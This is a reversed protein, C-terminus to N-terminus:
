TTERLVMAPDTRSARHAPLWAAIMGVTALMVTATGVVLPDAPTVGYLLSSIFRGSWLSIALGLAIGTGILWSTEWVVLRIVGAPASGLALRVALESRRCAVVYATVGYLGIAALLLALAGGFLSLRAVLRDQALVANVRESMPRFTSKLNPDIATVAARVSNLIQAPTQATPRVALFFFQYYLPFERQALPQYMTPIATERISTHISDGVVGVITKRGIAVDGSDNTHATLSVTRNVVREGPFYRRVFAENVLMVPAANRSDQEAIDRGERLTIGYAALWGPTIDFLLSIAESAPLQRGGSVSLSFGVADLNTLPGGMSGGARDVGPLQSTTEIIRDYIRQRESIPIRIADIAGLLLRDSDFGLPAETLQRYTGVFLGATLVLLLAMAVQGVVFANLTRRGTRETIARRLADIARIRTASLAPILGFLATALTTIVVTFGLTRWDFSLDLAVPVDNTPIQAVLLRGTWAAFLLGLAAGAGALWLSERLLQRVLTWRSAGLALRIALEKRRAAGCGLYLHAVNACAVLLVLLTLALVMLLPGDYRRRLSFVSTGTGASELLFPDRLFASPSLPPPLSALRIEPQMSRLMSTATALSQGPKLKLMIWLFAAHPGLPLESEIVPQTKIPLFLDFPRGLELGSFEPPTVGVITVPTREVMLSRGVVDSARNFRRDWLRFSIMAVPGDVGGGDTDDAPSLTRGILAPLGLVTFLDGSAWMSSVPQSQGQVSLTSVSWALAGDVFSRRRIDDFTAYSFMETYQRQQAATTSLTVLREPNAVPLPRLLVSNVLTFIATTAGIGLALSVTAAITVVSVSRAIRNM